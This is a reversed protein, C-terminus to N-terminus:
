VDDGTTAFKAARVTCPAVRVALKGNALNVMATKVQKLPDIGAVPMGRQELEALMEDAPWIRDTEEIVDLVRTRVSPGRRKAEQPVGLVALAQDLKAVAAAAEDAIRDREARLFAGSPSLSTM